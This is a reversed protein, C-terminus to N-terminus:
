FQNVVVNSYQHRNGGDGDVFTSRTYIEDTDDFVRDDENLASWPVVFERHYHIGDAEAVLYGAGPGKGAGPFFEGKILPDGDPDEAHINYEIGGPREGTNINNIFGHADYESM